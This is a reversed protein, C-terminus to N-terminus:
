ILLLKLENRSSKIGSEDLNFMLQITIELDKILKQVKLVWPRNISKTSAHYRKSDVVKDCDRKFKPHKKLFNFLWTETLGCKSRDYYLKLIVAPKIRHKFRLERRVVEVIDLEFDAGLKLFRGKGIFNQNKNHWKIADQLSKRRIVIAGIISSDTAGYNYKLKLVKLKPSTEKRLGANAKLRKVKNVTFKLKLGM